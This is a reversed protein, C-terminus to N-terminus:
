NPSNFKYFRGYKVTKLQGDIIKKMYELYFCKNIATSLPASFGLKKLKVISTFLSFIRSYFLKPRM